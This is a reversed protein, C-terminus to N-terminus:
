FGFCVLGCALGFWGCLRVSVFGSFRYCAIRHFCRFLFRVGLLCLCGVLDWGLGGVM